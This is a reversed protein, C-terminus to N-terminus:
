RRFQWTRVIDLQQTESALAAPFPAFPALKEVTDVAARDLAASGSSQLLDVQRLSGDSYVSVKLRVDGDGYRLALGRYHANGFREIADQWHLLYDANLAARAAVTTQPPTTSVATSMTLGSQIMAAGIPEIPQPSLSQFLSAKPLTQNLSGRQNAAAEAQSLEPAETAPALLVTIAHDAVERASDGVASLLFGFIVVLHIGLSLLFAPSLGARPALVM